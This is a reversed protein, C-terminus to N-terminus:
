RQRRPRKARVVSIASAQERATERELFEVNNHKPAGARAASHSHRDNIQWRGRYHSARYGAQGGWREPSCGLCWLVCFYRWTVATGARRTFCHRRHCSWVALPYKYVSSVILLSLALGYQSRLLRGVADRRRKKAPRSKSKEDIRFCFVGCPALNIGPMPIHPLM